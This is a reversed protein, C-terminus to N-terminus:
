WFFANPSQSRREALCATKMLLLPLRQLVSGCMLSCAVRSAKCPLRAEVELASTLAKCNPDAEEAKM